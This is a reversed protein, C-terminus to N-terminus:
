PTEETLDTEYLSDDDYFDDSEPEDMERFDRRLWTPGRDEILTARNALYAERLFVYYDLSSERARDVIPVAIARSNVIEVPMGYSPLLNFVSDFVRGTTGRPSSPGYFPLMWYPGSGIGWVAFMQGFDEDYFPMGFLRTAPDWLGVVGITSNTLFRLTETGAHRPRGQGLTSFARIPFELNTFADDLARRFFEPTIFRWARGLPQLLVKDLGENFAFVARNSREYPDPDVWGNADPRASICGVLGSSTVLIWALVIGLARGRV